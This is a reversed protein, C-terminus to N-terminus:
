LGGGSARPRAGVPLVAPLELDDLGTPWEEDGPSWWGRGWVDRSRAPRARRRASWGRVCDSPSGPTRPRRARRRAGGRRRRQRVLRALRWTVPSPSAAGPWGPRAAGTPCSRRLADDHRWRRGPQAPHARHGRRGATPRRTRRRPRRRDVGAAAGPRLRAADAAGRDLARDLDVTVAEPLRWRGRRLMRARRGPRQAAVAHRGGTRGPGAPRPAGPRRGCRQGGRDPRWRPGTSRPCRCRCTSGTSCRGPCGARHLRARGHPSCSCDVGKGFGLGCPCPNAALVLQFRAPFRVSPGPGPSSWRAPSSRSACRRCCRHRSSRRRTSSCCATTRRRSRGPGSRRRQRRRHHGGDLRQPAARRVAAPARADSRRCGVGSCRASRWRGRPGARPDPPPLVSVLREALMTKGSAPRGWWSCTTGARPPWSSRWGRRTRASSTPSTRGAAQGAVGRGRLRCTAPPLPARARGRRLRRRPRRLHRRAHVRIGPSWRPRPRTTRGAGRRRPARGPRPWSRPCCGACRGSRATSASSASTCSTARWRRPPVVGAASSCRSRSRCTSARQRGQPDVGAVPQRHHPRQPLPVGSNAAAPRSGTPRSRARRTPCAASCSRAAAGAVLDAEVDVVAGDLGALAVSRTRGLSM